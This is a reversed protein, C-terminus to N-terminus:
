NMQLQREAISLRSRLASCYSILNSLAKQFLFLLHQSHRNNKHISWIQHNSRSHHCPFYDQRGNGKLVPTLLQQWPLLLPSAILPNSPL